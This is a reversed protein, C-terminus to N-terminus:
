VKQKWMRCQEIRKGDDGQEKDYAFDNLLQCPFEECEGCHLKGKSECCEKVPCNKGEGWFPKDINLCGKCGVEEQYKCESCLIGCRSEIM